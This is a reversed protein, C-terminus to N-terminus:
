KHPGSKHVQPMGVRPSPGSGWKERSPYAIGGVVAGRCDGRQECQVRADRSRGWRRRPQPSRPSQPQRPKGAAPVRHASRSRLDGKNLAHTESQIRMVSHSSLLPPSYLDNAELDNGLNPAGSLSRRIPRGRLCRQM